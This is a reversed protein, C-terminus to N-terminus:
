MAYNPYRGMLEDWATKEDARLVSCTEASVAGIRRNRSAQRVSNRQERSEMEGISFFIVGLFTVIIEARVRHPNDSQKM